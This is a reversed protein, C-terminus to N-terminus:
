KMALSKKIEKNEKNHLNCLVRRELEDIKEFYERFIRNVFNDKPLKHPVIGGSIGLTRNAYRIDHTIIMAIIWQERMRQEKIEDKNNFRCECSDTIVYTPFRPFRDPYVMNTHLNMLHPTSPAVALSNRSINYLGERSYDNRRSISSNDTYITYPVSPPFDASNLQYLVIQLDKFGNELNNLLENDHTPLGLIIKKVLDSSL